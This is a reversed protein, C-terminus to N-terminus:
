ELWTCNQERGFYAHLTQQQVNLLWCDGLWDFYSLM